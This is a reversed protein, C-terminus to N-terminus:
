TQQRYIVRTTEDIKDALKACERILTRLEEYAEIQEHPGQGGEGNRIVELDELVANANTYFSALLEPLPSKLIGLKDANKDYVNLYSRRVYVNFQIPQGEKKIQAITTELLDLYKRRAVIARLACVEGRFALGLNRAERDDKRKETLVAGVFGGALTLAGGVITQIVPLYPTVSTIVEPNAM